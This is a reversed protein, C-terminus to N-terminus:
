DLFREVATCVRGLVEASRALPGPVLLAHDAGGIELVHPSLRRAAAGDWSDDGTGGVLLFPATARALPEAM